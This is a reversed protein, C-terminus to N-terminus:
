KLVEITHPSVAAQQALMAEVAGWYWATKGWIMGWITQPHQRLERSQLFLLLIDKCALLPSLAIIMSAFPPSLDILPSSLLSSHELQVRYYARGFMRLHRAIAQATARAPRHAVCASPDFYLTQGDEILRLSLDVDEGSAGVFREDFGGLREFLARLICFNFSPLYARSGPGAQSLFPAFSLLNDCLVWYNGPEIKMSGGVVAHGRAFHAALREVLDPAAICDADLFLLYDGSALKAGMNRAAGASLPKPTEVFRVGSPVRRYRDQGVVIFECILRRATQQELADVVQDILPSHLNPIVVSITYDAMAQKRALPESIV